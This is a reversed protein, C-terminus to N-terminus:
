AYAEAAVPAAMVVPRAPRGNKWSSSGSLRKTLHHRATAFEEGILGLGLLIVRMDYRSSVESYARKKGSTSKSKMAKAALALCFQIYSKVEGAHLTGNFLRFEVTRRVFFSNINLGRYRTENYRDAFRNLYGYWVQNVGDLTTPRAHELREMMAADVRRCYRGLRRESIGLAKEIILEHKNMMRILNALARGDVGGAGLHVNNGCSEDARGGAKRVERVVKQLGELDGYSLIPSVLEGNRYGSLSGDNVVKWERGDECTVTARDPHGDVRGGIAKQIAQAVQLKDLGVTEIEIGFNLTKM